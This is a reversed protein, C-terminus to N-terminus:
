DIVQYFVEDEKIMGLVTRAHEEIAEGGERLDDVEAALVANRKALGGNQDDASAIQRKIEFLQCLGSPGLWLQYQMSVLLVFLAVSLAKSTSNLM